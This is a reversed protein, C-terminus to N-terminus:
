GEFIWCRSTLSKAQGYKGARVSAGV